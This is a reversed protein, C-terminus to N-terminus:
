EEIKPSEEQSFVNGCFPCVLDYEKHRLDEWHCHFKGQCKPYVANFIKVMARVERDLQPSPVHTHGVEETM